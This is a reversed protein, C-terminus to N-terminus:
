EVWTVTWYRTEGDVTVEVSDGRRRGLVACGLPSAPTVVTLYGDGGPVELEAGAGVPALFFTRGERAEDDEVEVIAGVGIRGGQALRGPRFEELAVLEAQAREFRRGQGRALGGYELAVRADERKEQPTAGDRAIEAAAVSAREAVSARQRIQAALQACLAQKDM